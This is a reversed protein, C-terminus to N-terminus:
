SFSVNFEQDVNNVKDKIIKIKNTLIMNEYEIHKYKKKEFKKNYRERRLKEKLEEIELDKNKSISILNNIILQIDNNSIDNM